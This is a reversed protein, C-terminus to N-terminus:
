RGHLKLELLQLNSQRKEAALAAFNRLATSEKASTRDLLSRRPRLHMNATDLGRKSLNSISTSVTSYREIETM